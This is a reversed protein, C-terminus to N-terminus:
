KEEHNTLIAVDRISERAEELTSFPGKGQTAVVEGKESILQCFYQDSQNVIQWEPKSENETPLNPLTEAASTDQDLDICPSSSSSTLPQTDSNSDEQPSSIVPLSTEQVVPSVISIPVELEESVSSSDHHSSEKVEEPPVDIAESAQPIDEEEIPQDSPLVIDPQEEQEARSGDLSLSSDAQSVEKDINLEVEKAPKVSDNPLETTTGVLQDCLENLHSHFLNVHDYRNKLKWFEVIDRDIKNLLVNPQVLTPPM